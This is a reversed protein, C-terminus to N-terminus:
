LEAMNLIKGNIRLKPMNLVPPMNLIRNIEAFEPM